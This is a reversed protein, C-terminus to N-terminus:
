CVRSVVRGTGAHGVNPDYGPNTALVVIQVTNGSIALGSQRASNAVIVGMHSPLPAPPPPASNGPDTTWTAGCTPVLPNLAFGKFAAPTASASLSNLMWWQAGWFTVSTGISANRDGIVFTGGGPPLVLVNRFVCTVTEGPELTIASPPSSDDCSVGTQDWGTPVSESLSYGSRPVVNAFTRTAGGSLTFTAPNLGGAATFEFSTTAREPLTEKKVILTALKVNTFTCEVTEGPDVTINDIPSGDSCSANLQWGDPVGEALSYGSRAAVDAFVRSEGDRLTFSAPSLGGGATFDFTATAGAPLTSKKVVLTGTREDRVDTEVVDINNSPVPDFGHDAFLRMAAWDVSATNTIRGPRTPRVVITVTVTEDRGLDGLSCEIRTPAAVSCSGKTSSPVGDVTVGAPVTDTVQTAYAPSPGANHVTLTYTLAEGVNVVAASASKVISVDAPCQSFGSTWGLTFTPDTATATIVESPGLEFPFSYSFSAEGSDNTKVFSPLGNPVVLREGEGYFHTQDCARNRFFQLQYLRNPKSNLFGRVTTQGDAVSVSEITPFNQVDNPGVDGDRNDNPAPYPVGHASFNIGPGSNEFIRNSLITVGPCNPEPQACGAIRPDAGPRTGEGFVVVGSGFAIVNGQSANSGGVMAPGHSADHTLFVHGGPGMKSTGALDTGMYNGEIRLDRVTSAQQTGQIGSILNCAGSCRDERTGTTGGILVDTANGISIRSGSSNLPLIYSTGTPNTGFYNGQVTIHEGRSIFLGHQRSNVSIVNRQHENTGGIRANSVGDLQPGSVAASLPALPRSGGVDTGIFNGELVLNSGSAVLPVGVGSILNCDGSCAGAPTNDTGGVVTDNSSILRIGEGFAFAGSTMAATGEPNTGFRNGGIVNGNSDEISLLQHGHPAFAGSPGSIGGMGAIVNDLIRSAGGDIRIGWRGWGHDAARQVGGIVDPVSGSADLGIYNREIVSSGQVQLNTVFGVIALCRVTSGAGVTLGVQTYSPNAFPAFEARIEVLPQACEPGLTAAAQTGGDIVVPDTAILGGDVVRPGPGPIAFEIRDVGANANSAAVAESLTCHTESCGTSDATLGLFTGSSEANVTYTAAQGLSPASLGAGLTAALLAARASLGTFRRSV